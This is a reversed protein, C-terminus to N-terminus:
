GNKQPVSNKSTSDIRIIIANEENKSSFRRDTARLRCIMLFGYSEVIFFYKNATSGSTTIAPPPSTEEKVILHFMHLMNKLCIMIVVVM